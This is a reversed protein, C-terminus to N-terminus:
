RTSATSPWMVSPARRKVTPGAACYAHRQQGAKEVDQQAPEARDPQRRRHAAEDVHQQHQAGAEHGRAQEPRRARPGDGDDDGARQHHRPGGREQQQDHMGPGEGVLAPVPGEALEERGIEAPGADHAHGQGEPQRRRQPASALRPRAGSAPRHRHDKAPEQDRVRGPEGMGRAAEGLAGRQHDDGDEVLQPRHHPDAAEDM